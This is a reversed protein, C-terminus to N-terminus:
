KSNCTNSETRNDGDTREVSRSAVIDAHLGCVDSIIIDGVKIPACVEIKNIEKMVDFLKDKPINVSTIVPLRKYLGGELKVTSTLMRVPNKLESKAYVEGRKCTNGIVEIMNNNDDLTVELHCSMPCVICAMEKKTM